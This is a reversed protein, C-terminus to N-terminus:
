AWGVIVPVFANPNPTSDTMRTNNFNGGGILLYRNDPFWSVSTTAGHLDRPTGSPYPLIWLEQNVIAALQSGDRSFGFASVTGHPFRVRPTGPRPDVCIDVRLQGAM